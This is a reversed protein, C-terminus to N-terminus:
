PFCGRHHVDPLAKKMIQTLKVPSQYFLKRRGCRLRKPSNVAVKHGSVAVFNGRGYIKKLQWMQTFHGHRRGGPLV